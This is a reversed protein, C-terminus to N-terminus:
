CLFYLCLQFLFPAEEAVGATEVGMRGVDEKMILTKDWFHSLAESKSEGEANERVLCSTRGAKNVYCLDQREGFGGLPRQSIPIGLSWTCVNTFHIDM